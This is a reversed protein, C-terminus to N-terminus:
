GTQLGSWGVQKKQGKFEDIETKKQKLKELIKEQINIIKNSHDESLKVLPLIAEHKKNKMRKEIQTVFMELRKANEAEQTMQWQEWDFNEERNM